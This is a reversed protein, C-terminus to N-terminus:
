LKIMTDHQEQYETGLQIYDITLFWLEYLDINKHETGYHVKLHARRLYVRMTYQLMGYELVKEYKPSTDHIPVTGWQVYGKM